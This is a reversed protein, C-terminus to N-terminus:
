SCETWRENRRLWGNIAHFTWLFLCTSSKRKPPRGHKTAAVTFTLFKAAEKLYLTPWVLPRMRLGLMESPRLYTEFLLVVLLGAEKEVQSLLRLVIACVMEWPTPERAQWPHLRRWRTLARMYMPLSNKLLGRLTPQAWLSAPGLRVM